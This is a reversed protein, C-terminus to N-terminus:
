KSVLTKEVQPNIVYFIQTEFNPTISDFQTNIFIVKANGLNALTNALDTALVGSNASSFTTVLIDKGRTNINPNMKPQKKKRLVDFFKTQTKSESM